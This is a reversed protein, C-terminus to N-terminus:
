QPSSRGYFVRKSYAGKRCGINKSTLTKVSIIGAWNKFNYFDAPINFAIIYIRDAMLKKLNADLSSGRDLDGESAGAKLLLQEPAGDWIM